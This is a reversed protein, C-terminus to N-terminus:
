RARKAHFIQAHSILLNAVMANDGIGRSKLLNKLGPTKLDLDHVMQAAAQLREELAPGHAKELKAFEAHGYSDLEDANMNKTQQAVKAIATVLSNGIERPMGATSMWTRANTDFAKLEPSSAPERGAEGYAIRYDTPKAPPFQQDLAKQEDTRQDPGRQDLPTNLEAFQKDAQAQTIKGARLDAKAWEAFKLAESQSIEAQPEV